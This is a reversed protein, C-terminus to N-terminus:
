IIYQLDDLAVLAAQAKAQIKNPSLTSPQFTGVGTTVQMPMQTHSCYMLTLNIQSQMCVCMSVVSGVSTAQWWTIPPLVACWRTHPCEGTSKLVYRKYCVYQINAQVMHLSHCCWTHIALCFKLRKTMTWATANKTACKYMNKLQKM